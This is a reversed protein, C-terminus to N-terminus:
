GIIRDRDETDLLVGRRKISHLRTIKAKLKRLHIAKEAQPLQNRKVRYIMDYYYNELDRRHRNREAGEHQITQQIKPKVYKDWWM